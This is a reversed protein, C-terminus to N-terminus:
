IIMSDIESNSYVLKLSFEISNKVRTHLMPIEPFIERM